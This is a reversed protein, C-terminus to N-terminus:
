AADYSQIKEKLARASEEINNAEFVARVVAIRPAGLKLVEEVNDLHIGGIAVFPTKLAASYKKILELGVAKRGPKTPTAFIPGLAVYSAGEKEAELAQELSHTSRGILFSRAGVQKKAELLPLDEQGLHVGDAEVELAVDLDDNVIFLAGYRHCIEKLERALPVLDKKSVTKGRLQIIDAGGKCAQEVMEPYSQGM